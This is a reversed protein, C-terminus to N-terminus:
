GDVLTRDNMEADRLLTKPINFDDYYDDGAWTFDHAESKDLRQADITGFKVFL